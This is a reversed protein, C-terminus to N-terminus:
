ANRSAVKEIEEPQTLGSWQQIPVGDDGLLILSPLSRIEWERAISSGEDSEVDIHEVPTADYDELLNDQQDCPGCWDAEFKLLKM